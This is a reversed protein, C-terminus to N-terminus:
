SVSGPEPLSLSAAILPDARVTGDGEAWVPTLMLKITQTSTSERSGGAELVKWGVTGHGEWTVAAQLTLEIPESIRFRLGNGTGKDMAKALSVRLGDVADALDVWADAM